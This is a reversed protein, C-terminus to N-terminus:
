LRWYLYDAAEFAAKDLMSKVDVLVKRHTGAYFRDFDAVTLGNFQEHSVALIVADMDHEIFEDFNRYLTASGGIRNAANNLREEHFDCIATIECGLRQFNGALDADRGAGFVGIKIPNM